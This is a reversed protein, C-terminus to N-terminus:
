PKNSRRSILRRLKQRVSELLEADEDSAGRVSLMIEPSIDVQSWSDILRSSIQRRHRVAGQLDALADGLEKEEMSEELRSAAM